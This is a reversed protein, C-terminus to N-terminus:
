LLLTKRPARLFERLNSEAVENQHCVLHEICCGEADGVHPKLGCMERLSGDRDTESLFWSGAVKSYNSLQWKNTDLKGCGYFFFIMVSHSLFAICM